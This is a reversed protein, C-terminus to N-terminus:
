ALSFGHLHLAAPWPNTPQKHTSDHLSLVDLDAHRQVIITTVLAMAILAICPLTVTQNIRAHHTMLLKPPFFSVEAASFPRYLHSCSTCQLEDVFLLLLHHM